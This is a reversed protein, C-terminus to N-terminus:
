CQFACDLLGGGQTLCTVYCGVTAIGGPISTVVDVIANWIDSFISQPEINAQRRLAMTSSGTRTSYYHTTAQGLSAEATFGPLRQKNM